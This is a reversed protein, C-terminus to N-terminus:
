GQRGRRLYGINVGYVENAALTWSLRVSVWKAYLATPLTFRKNTTNYTGVVNEGKENFVTVYYPVNKTAYVSVNRIIATDDNDAVKVYKTQFSKTFAVGNDTTDHHLRNLVPIWADYENGQGDIHPVPDLYSDPVLVM